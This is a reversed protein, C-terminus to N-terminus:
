PVALAARYFRYPQGIAGTDVYDITGTINPLTIVDTWDSFNSTAQITVRQGPDSTVRLTPAGGADVGIISIGISTSPTITLTGNILTITYNLDAAGSATIAYSGAPSAATATTALSV